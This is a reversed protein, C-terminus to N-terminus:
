NRMRSRFWRNMSEPKLFIAQNMKASAAYQPMASDPSLIQLPLGKYNGEIETLTTVLGVGLTLFLGQM